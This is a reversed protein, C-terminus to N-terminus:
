GKIVAVIAGVEDRVIARLRNGAEHIRPRYEQRIDMLMTKQDATLNLDKFNVIRAAMRDRICDHREDKLEALKAKQEEDLVDRMQGLEDHVLSCVEHGVTEVKAKQDGTLNLSALIERRNKGAKLGAERAQRQEPTLLGELNKMASVMKSRYTKRIAEIKALEADTVDLEQLHAVRAALGDIRREMREDKLAALKTRQDPTLVARAKEVEGTVMAALEKVAKEVKPRHQKRISAIEAEQTDTLNLDQIREGIREVVGDGRKGQAEGSLCLGGGAWLVALTLAGILTRM